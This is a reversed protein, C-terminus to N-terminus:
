AAPRDRAQRSPPQTAPHSPPPEMYGPPAPLCTPLYAPLCTPLYAPPCPLPPSAQRGDTDIKLLPDSPVPDARPGGGEVRGTTGTTETTGPGAGCPM